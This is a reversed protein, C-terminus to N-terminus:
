KGVKVFLSELEPYLSIPVNEDSYFFSSGDIAFELEYYKGKTFHKNYDGLCEYTYDTYQM